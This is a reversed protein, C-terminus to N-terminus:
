CLSRKLVSSEPVYAIREINVKSCLPSRNNERTKLSVVAGCYSIFDGFGLYELLFLHYKQTTPSTKAARNEGPDIQRLWRQKISCEM